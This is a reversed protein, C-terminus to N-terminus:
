PANAAKKAAPAAISRVAAGALAPGPGPLGAPGGTPASGSPVASSRAFSVSPSPSFCPFCLAICVGSGGATISLLCNM